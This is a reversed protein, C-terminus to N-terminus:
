NCMKQIQIYAEANEFVTLDASSNFLVRLYIVM